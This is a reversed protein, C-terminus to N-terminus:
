GFVPNLLKPYSVEALSISDYSDLFHQAAEDNFEANRAYRLEQSRDQRVPHMGALAGSAYAGVVSEQAIRVADMTFDFLNQDNPIRPLCHFLMDGSDLGKSLMHVTAGVHGPRGDSLAWFNCSSGRYYPSLGMHINIARKEVLYDALWGRIFSAGFVVFLDAGLADGLVNKGIRSLDGTKMAFTLVNEAQFSASGFLKEEARMVNGFYEQMVESKSFFDPVQGPFLTTVEAVHYIRTAIKAFLRVLNLHRPQNGTFVTVRLRENGEL